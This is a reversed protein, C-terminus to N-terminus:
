TPGIMPWERLKQEMKIGAFRAPLSFQPDITKHIPQQGWKEITLRAQNYSTAIEPEM